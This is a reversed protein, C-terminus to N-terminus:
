QRSNSTWNCGQCGEVLHQSVFMKVEVCAAVGAFSSAHLSDSGVLRSTDAADSCRHCRAHSVKLTTASGTTNLM